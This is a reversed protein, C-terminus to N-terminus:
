NNDIILDCKERINYKEFYKNEMPIWENIFRDIKEPSRTKLRKIKTEEGIDLFIKYDYIDGYYPHMSYVGEVITLKKPTLEIQDTVKGQSCNYKGYSFTKESKLNRVVENFFREYDVNGGPESLRELAKREFPLFFDDIHIINCDFETAIENALTTKGSTCPGEIAIIIQQNKSTFSDITEVIDKNM